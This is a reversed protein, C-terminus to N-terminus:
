NKQLVAVYQTAPAFGHMLLTEQNEQLDKLLENKLTESEIKQIKQEISNFVNKLYPVEEDLQAPEENYDYYLEGIVQLELQQVFEHLRKREYTMAHFVGNAQDIKASTHHIWVHTMQRPTQGDSIMEHLIMYGNPKLVRLMENIIHKPEELHHITNSLCVVDFSEDEFTMSSADMVKLDVNLVSKLKEAGQMHVQEFDIGTYHVEKQFADSILRIFVGNGTGVDLLTHVSDQPLTEKLFHSLKNM